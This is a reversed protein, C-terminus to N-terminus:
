FKQLPLNAIFIFVDATPRVEGRGSRAWSRMLSFRDVFFTILLAFSGLFFTAPYISCYWLTLFLFKIMNAYREALNVETGMMCMNMEYQTKARPAFIHRSINGGIDLLQVVPTIVLQSFFLSYVSPLLGPLDNERRDLTAQFPTVLSLLVTTVLVNFAAIKLFLWKQRSTESHHRELKMLLKAVVPFLSTFITTVISAWWPQNRLYLERIAFYAAVILGFTVIVTFARSLRLYLRSTDLEQWRIATPEEPEHVELVHKGRFLYRPDVKKTNFSGATMKTNFSGATMKTLVQRQAHETEFTVYVKTTPPKVAGRSSQEYENNDFCDRIKTEVQALKRALGLIKSRRKKKQSEAHQEISALDLSTGPPLTMQLQRLIERRQVLYRTLSKNAVDVTCVKPNFVPNLVFSTMRGFFSFCTHTASTNM